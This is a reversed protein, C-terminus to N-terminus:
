REDKADGAIATDATPAAVALPIRGYPNVLWAAPGPSRGRLAALLASHCPAGHSCLAISRGNLRPLAASSSGTASGAAGASGCTLSRVGALWQLFLPDLGPTAAKGAMACLRADSAGRQQARRIASAQLQEKGAREQAAPLPAPLALCPLLAALLWRCPASLAM